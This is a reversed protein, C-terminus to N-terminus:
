ADAPLVIVKKWSKSVSNKSLPKVSLFSGQSIGTKVTSRALVQLLGYSPVRLHFSVYRGNVLM